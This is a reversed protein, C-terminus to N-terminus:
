LQWTKRSFVTKITLRMFRKISAPKGDVKHQAFAGFFLLLMLALLLLALNNNCFEVFEVFNKVSSDLFM